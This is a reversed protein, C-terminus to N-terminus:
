LIQDGILLGNGGKGLLCYTEKYKSMREISRGHLKVKIKNNIDEPFYNELLKIGELLTTNLPFVYPEPSPINFYPEPIPTEPIPELLMRELSVKTKKKLKTKM